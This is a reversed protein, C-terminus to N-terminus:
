IDFFDDLKRRAATDRQSTKLHYRDKIADIYQKTVILYNRLHNIENSKEMAKAYNEQAVASKSFEKTQEKLQERQLRLEQRQLWLALILAILGLLEIMVVLNFGATFSTDADFSLSTLSIM